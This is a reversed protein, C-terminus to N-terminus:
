STAISKLKDKVDIYGEFPPAGKAKKEEKKPEEKKKAGMDGLVDGM